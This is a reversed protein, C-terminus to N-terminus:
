AATARSKQPQMYPDALLERVSGREERKSALTRRLFAQAEASIKSPFDLQGTEERIERVAAVPEIESNDLKGKPLSWDDYRPRHIVAIRPAGSDEHPRWLVAGAALVQKGTKPKASAM